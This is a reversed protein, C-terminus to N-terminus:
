ERQLNDLFFEDFNRSPMQALEILHMQPSVFFQCPAGAFAESEFPPLASFRQAKLSQRAAELDDVLSCLHYFGVKLFPMLAANDGVPAVLELYFGNRLELFCVQVSQSTVQFSRTRRQLGLARAYAAAADEVRPVACGVHHPIANIM